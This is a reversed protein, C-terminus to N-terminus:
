QILRRTRTIHLQPEQSMLSNQISLKIRSKVPRANAETDWKIKFTLNRQRIPKIQSGAKRQARRASGSQNWRGKTTEEHTRGEIQM